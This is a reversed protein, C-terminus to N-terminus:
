SDGQHQFDAIRKEIGETALRRATEVAEDLTSGAAQKTGSPYYERISAIGSEAAPINPPKEDLAAHGRAAVEEFMLIQERAFAARLNWIGDRVILFLLLCIVAISVGGMTVYKANM